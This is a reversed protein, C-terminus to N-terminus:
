VTCPSRGPDSRGITRALEAPTPLTPDDLM